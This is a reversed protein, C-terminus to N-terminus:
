PIDLTIPRITVYFTKFQFQKGLERQLTTLVVQLVQHETNNIVVCPLNLGDRHTRCLQVKLEGVVNRRSTSITLCIKDQNVTDPFIGNVVDVCLRFTNEELRSQNQRCYYTDPSTVGDALTFHDNVLIYEIKM